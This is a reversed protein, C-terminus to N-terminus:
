SHLFYRFHVLATDESAAEANKLRYYITEGAPIHVSRVRLQHAPNQFKTTSAFRWRSIIDKDDGYALELMYITNLEGVDEIIVSVIHGDYTDLKSSLTTTGSDAIETWSCWTNADAHTTLTCILNTDDPFILTAHHETLWTNEYFSSQSGWRESMETLLSQMPM